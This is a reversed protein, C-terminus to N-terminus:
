EQSRALEELLRDVRRVIEDRIERVKALPQGAPDELGWDEVSGYLFAPCSEAVGCGMTIIRDANQVMERTLLKPRLGDTAVGIEQLAEVAAPNVEEAPQTGASVAQATGRAKHNFIAEAMQSRGSNHVCVFLVRKM